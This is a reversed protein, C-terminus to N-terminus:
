NRKKFTGARSGGIDASWGAQTLQYEVYSGPVLAILEQRKLSYVTSPQVAEHFRGRGGPRWGGRFNEIVGWKIKKSGRLFLKYGRRMDRIVHRQTFSLPLNSMAALKGAAGHADAMPAVNQKARSIVASM